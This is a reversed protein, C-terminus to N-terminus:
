DSENKQTGREATPHEQDSTSLPELFQQKIGRALDVVERRRKGKMWLTPTKSRFLDLPSGWRRRVKIMRWRRPRIGLVLPASVKRVDTWPVVKSKSHGGRISYFGTKTLVWRLNGEHTRATAIGRLGVLLFIVGIISCPDTLSSFISGMSLLGPNDFLMGLLDGAGLVLFGIGWGVTSAPGGRNQYGRIVWDEGFETGCEPCIGEDGLGTLKYGCKLCNRTEDVAEEGSVSKIAYDRAM